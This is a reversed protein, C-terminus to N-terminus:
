EARAVFRRLQKKRQSGSVYRKLFRPPFIEDSLVEPLPMYKNDGDLNLQYDFTEKCDILVDAHHSLHKSQTNNGYTSDWVLRQIVSLLSEIKNVDEDKMTVGNRELYAQKIVPIVKDLRGVILASMIDCAESVYALLEKGLEVNYYLREEKTEM